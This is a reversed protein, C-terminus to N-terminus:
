PWVIQLSAQAGYVDAAISKLIDAQQQTLRM